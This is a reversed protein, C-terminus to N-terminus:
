LEPRLRIWGNGFGASDSRKQASNPDTNRSLNSVDNSFTPDPDPDDGGPDAVRVSYLHISQCIARSRRAMM